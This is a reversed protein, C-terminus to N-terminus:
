HAIPCWALNTEARCVLAIRFDPFKYFHRTRTCFVLALDPIFLFAIGGRLRSPSSNGTNPLDYAVTDRLAGSEVDLWFIILRRHLTPPYSVHCTLQVYWRRSYQECVLVFVSWQGNKFTGPCQIWHSIREEQEWLIHPLHTGADADTDYLVFRRDLQCVLLWKGAILINNPYKPPEGLFPREVHSLVRLSPTMWSQAM